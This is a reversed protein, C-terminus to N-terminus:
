ATNIKHARTKDNKNDNNDNNDIRDHIRDDIITALKEAFLAKCEPWEHRIDHKLKAQINPNLQMMLYKFDNLEQELLHAVCRKTLHLETKNLLAAYSSLDKYQSTNLQYELEPYQQALTEEVKFIYLWDCSAIQWHDFLQQMIMQQIGTVYIDNIVIVQQNHFQARLNAEDRVRYYQLRHAYRLERSHKSYNNSMSFTQSDGVLAPDQYLTPVILRINFGAQQLRRHINIALLNAAAPLHYFAPATIIWEKSNTHLSTSGQNLIPTLKNTLKETLKASFFDINELLGFKMGPYLRYLDQALPLDRSRIEELFWLRNEIAVPM